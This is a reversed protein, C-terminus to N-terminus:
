LVFKKLCIESTELAGEIWAQHNSFSDGIIYLNMDLPKVIDPILEKIDNPNVKHWYYSGIEWYHHNVWIPEPINLDPFLKNLESGIFKNIKAENGIRHLKTAYKGDTYSIMVIGKDPNIPIIYKIQSNTVIKGINAFWDNPYRAYIRYLPEPRILKNLKYLIYINSSLKIKNTIPTTIIVNDFAYKNNIDFQSNNKNYSIETISTNIKITGGLKFIQESLKKILQGLGGSLVYYSDDSNKISQVYYGISYHNIDSNYEYYKEIEKYLNNM